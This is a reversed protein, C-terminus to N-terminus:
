NLARTTYQLMADGLENQYTFEQISLLVHNTLNIIKQWAWCDVFPDTHSISTTSHLLRTWSTQWCSPLCYASHAFFVNTTTYSLSSPICCMHLPSWWFQCPHFVVPSCETWSYTSCLKSIDDYGLYINNNNSNVLYNTWFSVITIM